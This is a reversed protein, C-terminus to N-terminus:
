VFEVYTLFAFGGYRTLGGVDPFYRHTKILKRAKQAQKPNIEREILRDNWMWTISTQDIGSNEYLMAATPIGPIHSYMKHLPPNDDIILHKFGKEKAELIRKANNVHDDFFVLSKNPDVKSFQHSEWDNEHLEAKLDLYELNKLNRDFGIIEANPCAQKMLWTTHGKWVGSEVILEPNQVRCYLYIWFANHFGSGNTNDRHLRNSYIQFFDSTAQDLDQNKVTPFEEPDFFKRAVDALEVQLQKQHSEETMYSYSPDHIYKMKRAPSKRTKKEPQIKVLKFGLTRLLSKIIRKIFKM